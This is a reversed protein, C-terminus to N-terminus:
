EIELANDLTAVVEIYILDDIELVNAENGLAFNAGEKLTNSLDSQENTAIDVKIFKTSTEGNINTTVVAKYIFGNKEVESTTAINGETDIKVDAGAISSLSVTVGRETEVEHKLSGDSKVTVKVTSTNENSVVIQMNGEADVTTNSKPNNVEISSNVSNGANDESVVSGSMTGSSSVAINLVRDNVTLVAQKVGNVEDFSVNVSEDFEVTTETQDVPVVISTTKPEIILDDSLVMAFDLNIDDQDNAVLQITATTDYNFTLGTFTAVGEIALVNNNTFTATGTGNESLSIMETFNIDVLGENDVAKVVPDNEFDHVVGVTLTSPTAQNTFILKTAVVDSLILTSNVETLNSGKATLYYLENDATARYNIDTYNVVGELATQTLTGGLVGLGDSSLTISQNYDLDINGYEDVAVITPQTTYSLGSVTTQAISTSHLSVLIGLIIPVKSMKTHM